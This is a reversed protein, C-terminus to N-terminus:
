NTLRFMIPYSYTVSVPEGRQKGPIIRPLKEIIRQAEAQLIQDSGRTSIVSISGDKNIRFNVYVRGQLGLNVADQPYKFHKQVHRDLNQKFCDDQQKGKLGKCNEFMPKDELVFFPIDKLPEDEIVQIVPTASVPEDVLSETPQINTMVDQGNDIQKIVDIVVKPPEPEPMKPQNVIEPVDCEVIKDIEQYTYRAPEDFSMKYNIAFLSVSTAVVLGVTFFLGSYRSLDAKPNKKPNM